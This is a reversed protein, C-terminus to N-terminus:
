TAKPVATIQKGFQLVFFNLGKQSLPVTDRYHAHTLESM